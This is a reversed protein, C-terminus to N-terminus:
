ALARQAHVRKRLALSQLLADFEAAVHDPHLHEIAERAGNRMQQLRPSDNGLRVTAGIFASADGDPVRIGHDGSRLHERAAGYDFAITPVGSAMAELTVNGFTESRSPFLFLDASAFHRALEEGRQLGCFVFDPHQRELSERLPGDGVFVFCADPRLVQLARFAEIALGLNKEAAIRGVHIAVLTGEGAGWTARLSDDRRAPHFLEGDVARALRVPNSFARRTLEEQLERTAVITADGANHFRRMWRLAVRELFGFGYDRMYHDFRTHLGTAVPIGLRRAVRRAGWGLPGETAIYVADPRQVTWRTALARQAPVGFRLGPYLPLPFGRVLLDEGAEDDQGQRPRVLDVAHSRKRLGSVLGEVTLAGGNIEPPYTETVIAYRM